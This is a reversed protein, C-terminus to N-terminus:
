CRVAENCVTLRLRRGREKSRRIEPPQTLVAQIPFGHELVAPPPPLGDIHCSVSRRTM